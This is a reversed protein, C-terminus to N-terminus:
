RFKGVTQVVYDLYIVLEEAIRSREFVVTIDVLIYRAESYMLQRINQDVPSM